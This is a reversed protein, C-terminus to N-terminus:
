RENLSESMTKAIPKLLYELVTKQGTKIEVTATMGPELAISKGSKTRLANDDIQINVRYHAEDGRQTKEILADPSVYIVQGNIVGYISYDYADLKVAASLGPRVFAIDTTKLKAEVILKDGSPVLEMVTEGPQVRAGRTTILINKVVADVPARMETRELTIARDTLEQNRTSLEEEVKTLEAQADQLYKNRVKAIQGKLESVQRELRIVESKGIDGNKLLPKVLALEQQVLSLSDQLTAIEENIANQRRRFLDRQNSVFEQYIEIDHPFKLDRGYTEAQLRALTAKLAAVKSLSEDHAAQARRKVLMALLDGQKVKMGEHVYIDEIVGDNASQIVQTKSKAIIQGSARSIQDLHAFSAWLIFIFLIAFISLTLITTPRAFTKLSM